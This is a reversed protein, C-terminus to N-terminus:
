VEYASGTDHGNEDDRLVDGNCWMLTGMVVEM